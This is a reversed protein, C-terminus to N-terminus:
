LSQFYSLYPSSVMVNSWKIIDDITIPPFVPQGSANIHGVEGFFPAFNSTLIGMPTELAVTYRFLRKGVQLLINALAQPMFSFVLHSVFYDVFSHAIVVGHAAVSWQQKQLNATRVAITSGVPQCM